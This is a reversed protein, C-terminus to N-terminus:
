WHAAKAMVSEPANTLAIALEAEAGAGLRCVFAATSAAPKPHNTKAAYPTSRGAVFLRNELSVYLARPDIGPIPHAKPRPM